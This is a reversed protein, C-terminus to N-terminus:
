CLDSRNLALDSCCKIGRATESQHQALSINSNIGRVVDFMGLSDGDCCFGLKMLVSPKVEDHEKIRGHEPHDPICCM